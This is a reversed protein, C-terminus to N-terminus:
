RCQRLRTTHIHRLLCQNSVMGQMNRLRDIVQRKNNLRRRMSAEMAATRHDVWSRSRQLHVTATAATRHVVARDMPTARDRGMRRLIAQPRSGTVNINIQLGTTATLPVLVTTLQVRDITIPDVTQRTTIEEVETVKVVCVLAMSREEVAMFAATIM